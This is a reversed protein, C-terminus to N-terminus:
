TSIVPALTDANRLSVSLHPHLETVEQRRGGERLDNFHISITCGMREPVVNM